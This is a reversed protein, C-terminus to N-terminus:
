FVSYSFINMITHQKVTVKGIKTIKTEDKLIVPQKSGVTTLPEWFFIQEYM